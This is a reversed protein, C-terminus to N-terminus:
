GKSKHHTRTYNIVFYIIVKEKGKKKCIEQSYLLRAPNDLSARTKSGTVSPSIM